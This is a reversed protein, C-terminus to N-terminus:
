YSSKIILFCKQNNDGTQTKKLSRQHIFLKFSCCKHSM